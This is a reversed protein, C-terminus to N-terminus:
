SGPEIGANSVKKKLLDRTLDRSSTMHLEIRIGQPEIGGGSKVENTRHGCALCTTAMIVVDKFHPIHTLKMDTTCQQSGCSPCATAFSYVEGAVDLDEAPADNDDVKTAAQIGLMRDQEITRIYRSEELKPDKAPVMLNQLFSNGSPDDLVFTFPIEVEKLEQLKVIFNALREDVPGSQLRLSLGTIARSLVGEITTVSGEQTKPPIEFDVEPISVSAWESKVVQRNLDEPSSVKLSYSIGREQIDAVHQLENNQWGCHECNFSMLVVEKYFPIKTLMLNTKGDKRCNLCLSDIETIGPNIDDGSIDKFLPEEGKESENQINESM